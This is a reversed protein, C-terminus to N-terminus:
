SIRRRFYRPMLIALSLLVVFLIGFVIPSGVDIPNLGSEHIDFALKVPTTPSTALVFFLLEPTIPLDAGFAAWMTYFRAALAAVLYCGAVKYGFVFISFPSM